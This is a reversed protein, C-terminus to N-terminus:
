HSWTETSLAKTGGSVARLTRASVFLTGGGFRRAIEDATEIFKDDEIPARYGQADPNYFVPLRMLVTVWRAIGKSM